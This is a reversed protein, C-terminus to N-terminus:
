NKGGVKRSFELSIWNLILIFFNCCLHCRCFTPMKLHYFVIISSDFITELYNNNLKIYLLWQLEFSAGVQRLKEMERYPLDQFKVGDSFMKTKIRQVDKSDRLLLKFGSINCRCSHYKHYTSLPQHFHVACESLPRSMPNLTKTWLRKVRSCFFIGIYTYINMYM